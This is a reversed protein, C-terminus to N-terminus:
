LRQVTHGWWVVRGIITMQEVESPTSRMETPFTVNESRLLLRDKLRELRKVRVDGAIDVLAYIEGDRLDNKSRDVLVLDGPHLTPLMSEGTVSVAVCKEADLGQEFMWKARFALPALEAANEGNHGPGASLQVDFRRVRVFEGEFAIAEHNSLFPRPPGFYLELGLVDALRDLNEISPMGHRKRKLNSILTSNGVAATSAGSITWGLEQIRDEITAILQNKDM